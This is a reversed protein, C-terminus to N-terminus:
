TFSNDRPDNPQSNGGHLDLNAEDLSTKIVQDHISFTEKPVPLHQQKVLINYCLRASLQDEKIYGNDYPTPFKMLLMHTSVMAKLDNICTHGFIVNYATLCEVVLFNTTITTTYPSTGITFPLHISGLPQVIDGFFSILPSISRDLLHEAVNLARFAEVFMINVSAGTDVLIRRVEFNAIHAEVILPDNHPYIIGREEEPYFCIPDWNPKQYKCGRIDEMHFVQHCSRLARENNKMARNSSKSIPTGGSISYIVNVQRQNCNGRLPHFLFQNIKGEHALAEIHDRLTICKEGDHGNHEHYCCFTGTNKTSKYDPHRPKPKPILHAISPYIAVCTANLPTYAEYRPTPAIRVRAQGVTNVVQPQPNDHCYGQNDRYHGKSRKIFHSQHPHFDKRKGQSQYTQQSPLTNLLAPPPVAATQFTSTKENPQIQSGSGVQQYHTAIPPKVQYTMAETSAHNYAHAMVESYTKWTNANIMYKFFCDRLGATFAKLATKDYAEACYSYEHNFHGAYMRLSEDLKQRINYLDDAPHLRNTQFIHQSIFLKRSEEFSDVTKPPLHCYWSLAGGSLTSPFLLCREEDTHMRYAM